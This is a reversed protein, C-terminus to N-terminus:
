FNKSPIRALLWAEDVITIGLSRAKDLKSGAGTGAVLITTKASVSQTVKAGNNKLCEEAQERSFQSLVGTVVIIEGALSQSKQRSIPNEPSVGLDDFTQALDPYTKLFAIITTAVKPGVEEITQLEEWSCQSFREFSAFHDALIEATRVGVFPIGLAHIWKALSKNKSNKLQELLNQASKAGMRELGTLFSEAQPDDILRFLDWPEQFRGSEILQRALADGLGEIQLAVRSGMHLLRGELQAPCRLNLCRIAVDDEESKGLPGACVPCSTPMVSPTLNPPDDNPVRAIIKPIIDGGKEIFVRHGIKLGLRDIEDANHLTARKVTSGGLQVPDLEAVPTLKGSRGVQWIINRVCSTTQEAAFKYAVAWRPARDTFGLQEQLSKDNVKIVIGDIDFGLTGRIPQVRDIFHSLTELSGSGYLPMRAFGWQSLIEMSKSHNKSSIWQWPIFQLRRRAVEASDLLKMTGSAANRPNAFRIENQLDRDQNLEEWRKRSLFVEGRILCYEPADVPLQLPIDAITKANETVDEGLTGDGRTIARILKRKEYELSLSLGDVKLEYALNLESTDIWRGMRTIWEQIEGFSYTNSLSYMAPAHEIKSFVSLPESGLRGTPSNPDKWEPHESELVILERELVDYEEDSLVPQDLIYYRYRHDKIQDSLVKMRERTM